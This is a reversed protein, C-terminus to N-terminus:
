NLYVEGTEAAGFHIRVMDNSVYEVNTFGVFTSGMSSIAVTVSPRKNLRHEIEWVDAAVGQYHVYTSQQRLDSELLGNPTVIKM